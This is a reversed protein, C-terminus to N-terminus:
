QNLIRLCLGALLRFHILEVTPIFVSPLEDHTSNPSWQEVIWILHKCFEFLLDGLLFQCGIRAARQRRARAYPWSVNISPSLVLPLSSPKAIGTAQVSWPFRETTLTTSSWRPVIKWSTSRKRASWRCSRNSRRHFKRIKRNTAAITREIRYRM